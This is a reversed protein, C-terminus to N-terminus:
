SAVSGRGDASLGSGNAPIGCGQPFAATGFARRARHVQVVTVASELAHSLCATRRGAFRRDRRLAEDVVEVLRARTTSGQEAALAGAQGLHGRETRRHRRPERDRGVGATGEHCCAAFQGAPELGLDGVVDPPQLLLLPLAEAVGGIRQQQRHAGSRRDRHRPHHVRDQIEAEGVFRHLSERLRGAVRAERAVRVPPQDLHESLDDVPDVGLAELMLERDELLTTARGGVDIQGGGIEAVQDDGVERDVAVAGAVRERLIGDLLEHTGHAGDEFRPIGRARLDVPACVLDRVIEARRDVDPAHDEAVLVLRRRGSDTERAIRGRALGAEVALEEQVGLALVDNGSDARWLRDGAQPRQHGLREVFQDRRHLAEFQM